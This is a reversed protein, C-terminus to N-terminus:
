NQEPPPFSLSPMYTKNGQGDFDYEYLQIQRPGRSLRGLFFLLGNPGAYFLHFRGQWDGPALEHMKNNIAEALRLAHWGNHVSASSAGEPPYLEIIRGVSPVQKGVFAEVSTRINRTPGAALAIDPKGEDLVHEEIAWSWTGPLALDDARWDSTQHISRQRVTMRLGAKAELLYGAAFAITQHAAFDLHVARRGVIAKNLFAALRTYIDEHWRLDPLPYRGRFFSTLPLFAHSWDEIEVGWGFFSRIGIRVPESSSPAESPDFLWGNAARTFVVPTIWEPSDPADGYLERRADAAATEVQGTEVLREYFAGAFLVAAPHSIQFQMGLVATMGRAILASTVGAFPAHDSQRRGTASYCANLVVLKLSGFFPALKAALERCWVWDEKGQGDDFLLGTQSSKEHLCGHGMFHLIHADQRSLRELLEELTPPVVREVEIGPTKELTRYILREEERVTSSAEAEPEPAILLVKLPSRVFLRQIDVPVDLYRVLAVDPRQALFQRRESHYVAEWPLTGYPALQDAEPDFSLRLRLGESGSRLRDLSADLTPRLPAPFLSAFLEGGTKRLGPTEGADDDGAPGAVAPDMARDMADLLEVAAQPSCPAEFRGKPRDRPSELIQVEPDGSTNLVVQIELDLYEPRPKM